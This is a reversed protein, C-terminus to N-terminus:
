DKAKENEPIQYITSQNIKIDVVIKCPMQAFVDDWRDEFQSMQDHNRAHFYRELGIADSHYEGQLKAMGDRINNGIATNVFGELKSKFEEMPIDKAADEEAISGTGTVDFLVHPMDGDISTVINTKVGHTEISVSKGPHVPDSVVVLTDGTMGLIWALGKTQEENLWGVMKDGHFVAAGGFAVQQQPDTAIEDGIPMKSKQLTIASILPQAHKDYYARCLSLMDTEIFEGTLRSHEYIDAFSVGAIDEMGTRITMYDRANGQAVVVPTKMRLEPNHTFFDIIPTISDRAVNEGIVIIFDHAWMIRKSSVKSLERVAEFISGGQASLVFVPESKGGAGPEQQAASKPNAIQVTVVFGGADAKDVGVAMVLGLENIERADWCGTLSTTLLILIFLIAARRM